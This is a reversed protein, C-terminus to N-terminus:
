KTRSSNIIEDFMSKIRERNHNNLALNRAQNAYYELLSDNSLITILKERLEQRHSAVLAADEEKFYNISSIDQPGIAIICRGSSLYDTIKTSFSLRAINKCRNDLNEVFVLIDARQQEEFVASQSISGNFRSSNPMNLSDIQSKSLSTQSYIDFFFRFGFEKNIENIIDVLLKITDFRGIVLSGTYVLRIIGHGKRTYPLNSIERSPKTVVLSNINFEKDCEKKMLPCIALVEDCSSILKFVSRRLFFRDLIAFINYPEQRYTFNDDWLFGIVKKPKYTDIIYQNLRNYYRYSEISFVFVDPHFESIFANLERSNWKGLKWLLERLWLFVRFRYRTFFSYINKEKIEASEKSTLASDESLYVRRGTQLKPHFISKIVNLEMIQFYNACSKSDPVDSRIYINAVRDAGYDELLTSLTDAGSLQSWSPISTTLVKKKM